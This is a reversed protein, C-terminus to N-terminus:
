ATEWEFEVNVQYCLETHDGGYCKAVMWEFCVEIDNLFNPDTLKKRLFNKDNRISVFLMSDIRNVSVSLNYNRELTTQMEHAICDDIGDFDNCDYQMEDSVHPFYMVEYNSYKLHNDYM